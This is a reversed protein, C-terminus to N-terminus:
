VEEDPDCRLTLLEVRSCALSAVPEGCGLTFTFDPDGALTVAEDGGALTLREVQQASTPPPPDNGYVDAFLEAVVGNTTEGSFGDDAFWATRMQLDNVAALTWAAGGPQTLQNTSSFEQLVGVGEPPLDPDTSAYEGAGVRWQMWAQPNLPGFGSPYWGVRMFFRVYAIGDPAAAVDGLAIPTVPVQFSGSVRSGELSTGDNQDGLVGAPRIRGLFVAM